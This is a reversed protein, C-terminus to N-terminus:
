FKLDSPAIQVPVFTVQGKDVMAQYKLSTSKGNVSIKAWLYPDGNTDPIAKLTSLDIAGLKGDIKALASTPSQQGANAIAKAFLAKLQEPDATAGKPNSSKAILAQAQIEGSPSGLSYIKIEDGNREMNPSLLVGVYAWLCATSMVVSGVTHAKIKLKGLEFGAQDRGHGAGDRYLHFGYRAIVLGGVIAFVMGLGKFAVVLLEPSM